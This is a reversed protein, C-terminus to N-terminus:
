EVGISARPLSPFYMHQDQDEKVVGTQFTCSRLAFPNHSLFIPTRPCSALSSLHNNNYIDQTEKYQRSFNTSTIPNSFFLMFDCFHFISNFNKHKLPPPGQESSWVCSLPLLPLVNGKLTAVTRPKFKFKLNRINLKDINFFVAMADGGVFLTALRMFINHAFIEFNHAGISAAAARSGIILAAHRMIMDYDFSEFYADGVSTAAAHLWSGVNLAAAQQPLETFHDANVHGSPRGRGAITHAGILFGMNIVMITDPDGIFVANPGTTNWSCACISCSGSWQM